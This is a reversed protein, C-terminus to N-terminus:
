RVVVLTFTAGRADTVICREATDPDFHVSVVHDPKRRLRVRRKPPNHSPPPSWHTPDAVVYRLPGRQHHRQLYRDLLRLEERLRRTRPRWTGNDGNLDVRAPM